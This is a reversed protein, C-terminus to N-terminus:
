ILLLRAMLIMNFPETTRTTRLSGSSPSLSPTVCLNLVIICHSKVQNSSIHNSTILNSIILHSKIYNSTIQHSIILHSKIHHSTIQHSTMYHFTIHYSSIHNSTILNSTTHLSSIHNSSIYYLKSSIPYLLTIPALSTLTLSFIPSSLCVGISLCM